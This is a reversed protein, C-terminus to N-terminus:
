LKRFFTDGFQFGLVKRVVHGDADQDLVIEFNPNEDRYPNEAGTALRGTTLRGNALDPTLSWGVNAENNWRLRGDVLSIQGRLYPDVPNETQYSGVLDSPSVAAWESRTPPAFRLAASLPPQAKATQLRKHLSEAYYDAEINGEKGVFDAPWPKTQWEHGAAGELELSPYRGFLFHFFEHQLWQPLWARREVDSFPGTGLHPPRRTLWRDDVVIVPSRNPMEGGIGYMGGTIFVTNAFLPVDEPVQSPYLVWWWDTADITRAPLAAWIASLDGPQVHATPPQGDEYSSTVQLCVEPLSVVSIDLHIRGGTMAHAYDRFLAVSQRLIRNNDTTLDPLIRARVPPGTGNSLDAM